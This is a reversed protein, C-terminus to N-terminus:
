CESLNSVYYARTLNLFKNHCQQGTFTTRYRGNIKRAIDDWFAHKERGRRLGDYEANRNRRENILIREELDNWETSM